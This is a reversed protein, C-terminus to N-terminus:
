PVEEWVMAVRFIGGGLSTVRPVAGFRFESPTKTIPHDFQFPLVGGNLSTYYYNRFLTYQATTLEISTTFTDFGRTFRRRLKAPGIDMDSKLVTDGFENGFNAENVKQQLTAPWLVAM